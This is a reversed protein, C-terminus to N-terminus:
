KIAEQIDCFKVYEGDDVAALHAIYTPAPGIVTGWRDCEEVRKLKAEAANVQILTNERLRDIETNKEEIRAELGAIRCFPCSKSNEFRWQLSHICKSVEALTTM